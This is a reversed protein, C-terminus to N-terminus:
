NGSGILKFPAWYRPNAYRKNNIIARKAQTLAKSISYQKNLYSYFQIMLDATLRDNVKWLSVVLNNAGAFQFARSLGMLGEGPIITGLGTECASLVVLQANIHLNYIENLYLINDNADDKNQYFVIGTSNNAENAAFAHTALHIYRTNLFGDNKFNTETAKNQLFLHTSEHGVWPLKDWFSAEDKFGSAITKIEYDTFILPAWSQARVNKISANNNLRTKFIPAFGIFQLNYEPKNSNKIALNLSVSTLYSINYDRIFYPLKGYEIQEKKEVKTSLLAGFPLLRLQKSPVMLLSSVHELYPEIPKILTSYLAYGLELYEAANGSVIAKRFATIQGPLGASINLPQVWLNEGTIIIAYLSKKGLFYEVIAKKNEKLMQQIKYVEPFESNYKLRYYKPYNQEINQILAALNRNLAFLSDKLDGASHQMDTGPNNTNYLAQKINTIAYKLEQEHNQIKEPINAIQKDNTHAVTELLIRGKSKESFYFILQLFSNNGSVEYMKYSADIAQEYVEYSQQAIAVKSNFQNYGWQQNDLYKSLAMYTYLSANLLSINNTKDYLKRLSAAKNTLVLIAKTPYVVDNIKPNEDAKVGNFNPAVVSLAKQFFSISQVVDKKLAFVQGLGAYTEAMAPHRGGVSAILIDQAKELHTQAENVKNHNILFQAFVNHSIAINPHNTSLSNKRVALSKKYYNYAEKEESIQNLASAINTYSIALEPHNMGVLQIKLAIAEKLHAIAKKYEGLKIECNAMSNLAIVMMGHERGYVKDIIRRAEKFYILAEGVDGSYFYNSGLNLYTGAINPHNEEKIALNAKLELLYYNRAQKYLGKNAYAVGINNYLKALRNQPPKPQSQLIALAKNYYFLAKDYQGLDDYLYGLSSIVVMKLVSSVAENDVLKSANELLKLSQKYKAQVAALLGLNTYARIRETPDDLTLGQLLKLAEQAQERAVQLHSMLRNNSSLHNYCHAAMIPKEGTKFLKAADLLYTNAQEFQAKNMLQLGKELLQRADNHSTQAQLSISNFFICAIITCFTIYKSFFSLVAEGLTM